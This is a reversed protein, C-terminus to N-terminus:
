AHGIQDRVAELVLEVLREVAAGAAGDARYLTLPMRPLAPLGLAARDLVEVGRPVAVVTRVALGLGAEAAAWLGSLSPTSFVVHWAIGAGDLAAIAAARFPCPPEFAILPLSAAKLSGVDLLDPRGIWAMPVDAIPSAHPAPGGDNWALAVDLGGRLTKEKLPASREVHMEVRVKPHARTFRGLVGPLFTDAFDQPMGLRVWGELEAGRVKDVAEDNLELLRQAYGLLAEGATTLALGRGSRQVLQAGIQDELKRLQTSVASQSRGLREAARAFSGLRFGLVFTRLVDMDLNPRIAM